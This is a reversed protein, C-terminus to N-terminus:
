GAQTQSESAAADMATSQLHLLAVADRLTGTPTEVPAYHHTFGHEDVVTITAMVFGRRPLKTGIRPLRASKM